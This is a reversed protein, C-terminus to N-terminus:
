RSAGNARAFLGAHVIPPQPAGILCTRSDAVRRYWKEGLARVPPLWLLPALWFTIPSRALVRRIADYGEYRATATLLQLAHATHEPTVRPDEYAGPEATGVLRVRGFVDLRALVRAWRHCFSCHSDWIVTGYTM